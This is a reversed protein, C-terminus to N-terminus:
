QAQALREQREKERLQMTEEFRNMDDANFNHSKEPRTQEDITKLLNERIIKFIHNTMHNENTIKQSNFNQGKVTFWIYKYSTKAEVKYNDLRQAIDM